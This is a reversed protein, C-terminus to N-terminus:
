KKLSDPTQFKLSKKQRSGVGTRRARMELMTKSSFKIFSYERTFLYNIERIITHIFVFFLIVIPLIVAELILVVYSVLISAANCDQQQHVKLKMCATILNVYNKILLKVIKLNKMMRVKQTM